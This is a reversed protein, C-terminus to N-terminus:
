RRSERPPSSPLSATQRSGRWFYRGRGENRERTTTTRISVRPYIRGSWGIDIPYSVAGGGPRPARRVAVAGGDSRLRMSFGGSRSRRLLVVSALAFAFDTDGEYTANM